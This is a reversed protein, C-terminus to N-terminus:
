LSRLFALLKPLDEDAVATGNPHRHRRFVDELTAARADHFYPGGQSVGRLSPPNFMTEGAEDRLGVDFAKPWTYAPPAHCTGCKLRQFVRRGEKVAVADVEGRAAALSPPPELTRIFAALDSAQGDSAKGGDMTSAVSQHAQAELTPM